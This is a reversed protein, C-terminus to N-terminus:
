AARGDVWRLHPHALEHEIACGVCLRTAGAEPGGLSLSRDSGAAVDDVAAAAALAPRVAHGATSSGAAVALRGCGPTACREEAALGAVLFRTVRAVVAADTLLRRHGLGQTIELEAEAWARAIAVGGALPTERDGADHVLLLRARQRAAMGPVSAAAFSLGLWRETAQETQELLRGSGLVAGVFGQFYRRPEAVPALLVVQGAELGQDVALVAAAAGFSHAVVAHVRRGGTVKEVVERLARAWRPLTGIWGPSRGHGPLDLALVRLGADVLPAVFSALQAGGGGWGHVLVVTPAQEEGWSWTAIGGETTPIRAFRGAALVPAETAAVRRRPPRLFFVRRAIEAAGRPWWRALLQLGGVIAGLANARPANSQAVNSRVNTSKQSHTVEVTTSQSM